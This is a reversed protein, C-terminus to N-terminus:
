SAVPSHAQTGKWWGCAALGSGQVLKLKPSDAVHVPASVGLQCTVPQGEGRSLHAKLMVRPRPLGPGPRHIAIWNLPVETPPLEGPWFKLRLAGQAPALVVGFAARARQM